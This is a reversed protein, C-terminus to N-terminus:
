AVLDEHWYFMRCDNRIKSNETDMVKMLKWSISHVLSSTFLNSFQYTQSKKVM